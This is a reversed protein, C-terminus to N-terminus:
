LLNIINQIHQKLDMNKQDKIESKLKVVKESPDMNRLSGISYKSVAEIVDLPLKLTKAIDEYSMDDKDLIYKAIKKFNSYVLIDFEKKSIIDKRRKELLDLCNNYTIDIWKKIGIAFAKQGDQTVIKYYISSTAADNVLEFLKEKPLSKCNPVREILLKQCESDSIDRITLKGEEELPELKKLNPKFEKPIGQIIYGLDDGNSEKVKFKVTVKGIGTEWLSKLEEKKPFEYGFSSKLLKYNDNIYADLLSKATFGPIDTSIGIGIGYTSMILAFPIPFPIYNAEKIKNTYNPSTPVYPLMEKIISCLKTDIGTSTYRPAAPPSDMGQLMSIFGFDGEPKFLGAQVLEATVPILAADGHPHYDGLVAGIIQATKVINANFNNIAVLFVRKYVPKLGDYLFPISRNLNSERGM